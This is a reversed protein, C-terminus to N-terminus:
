VHSSAAPPPIIELGYKSAAVLMKEMDAPSVSPLQMTESVPVGVEMFFKELGAPTFWCLLKAPKTGVNLFRHLQGKPSHPFTGPTALIIQEDLQFKM